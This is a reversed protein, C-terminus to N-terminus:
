NGMEWAWKGRDRATPLPSTPGGGTTQGDAPALKEVVLQVRGASYLNPSSILPPQMGHRISSM